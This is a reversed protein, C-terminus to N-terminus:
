AGARPAVHGRGLAGRRLTQGADVARELARPAAAVGGSGVRMPAASGRGAQVAAALTVLPRLTVVRRRDSAAPRLEAASRVEAATARRRSKAAAGLRRRFLREV